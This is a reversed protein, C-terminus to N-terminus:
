WKWPNKGSWKGYRNGRKSAVASSTGPWKPKTFTAFAKMAATSLLAAWRSIWAHHASARVPLPASQARHRAVLRIFTAAAASWRGGVELAVVVRRARGQRVLEPYTREKAKRAIRLAAGPESHLERTDGPSPLGNAIVEIRRDDNRITDTNLDRLFVNTSVTAGAERCIRAVARELAAGRSRLTGSRPCAARHDGFTDFPQQRRCRAPTHPLPLRLRRLLLVRFHASRALLAWNKMVQLARCANIVIM